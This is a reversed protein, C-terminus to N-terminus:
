DIDEKHIEFYMKPPTRKDAGLGGSVLLTLLLTTLNKMKENFYINMFLKVVM